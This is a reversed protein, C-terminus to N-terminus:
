LLDALTVPRQLTLYYGWGGGIGKDLINFQAVAYQLVREFGQPDLLCMQCIVQQQGDALLLNAGYDVGASRFVYDTALLFLEPPCFQRNRYRDDGDLVPPQLASLWHLVGGISKPSLAIDNRQFTDQVKAELLSAWERRDRNADGQQWLQHCMARYTWSFCNEAPQDDTWLVYQFGHVIDAFLQPKLAELEIIQEGMETLQNQTDEVFGLDRATALAELRARDRIVFGVSEAREVIADTSLGPQAQLVTLAAIM